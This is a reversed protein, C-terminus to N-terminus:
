KEFNKEFSFNCTSLVKASGFATKEHMKIQFHKLSKFVRVFWRWARLEGQESQCRIIKNLTSCSVHEQRPHTRPGNETVKNASSHQHRSSHRVALPRKLARFRLNRSVLNLYFELDRIAANLPKANLSVLSQFWIFASRRTICKSSM